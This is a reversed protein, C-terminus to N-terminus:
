LLGAAHSYGMAPQEEIHKSVDPIRARLIVRFSVGSRTSLGGPDTSFDM